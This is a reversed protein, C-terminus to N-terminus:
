TGKAACHLWFSANINDCIFSWFDVGQRVFDRSEARRWLLLASRVLLPIMCLVRLTAAVASTPALVGILPFILPFMVIM